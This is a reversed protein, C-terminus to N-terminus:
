SSEGLNTPWAAVADPKLDHNAWADIGCRLPTVHTWVVAKPEGAADSDCIAEASFSMYEFINM